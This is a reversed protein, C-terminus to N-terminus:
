SRTHKAIKDLVANVLGPEKANFYAHAIDVYDNIVVAASIKAHHALEYAGARLIARLLTEVRDPSLKSDFASKITEDLAEANQTVGTVIEGFLEADMGALTEGGELEPPHDHFDKIIREAPHQTLAIQYLGQIAALRALRKSHHDSPNGSKKDATKTV